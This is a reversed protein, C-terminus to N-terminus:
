NNTIVYFVNNKSSNSMLHQKGMAKFCNLELFDSHFQTFIKTKFVRSDEQVMGLIKKFIELCFNSYKKSDENFNGLIKKLM